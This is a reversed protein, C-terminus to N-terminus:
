DGEVEEILREVIGAFYGSHDAAVDEIAMIAERLAKLRAERRQGALWEDFLRDVEGREEPGHGRGHGLSFLHSHCFRVMERVDNTSWEAM